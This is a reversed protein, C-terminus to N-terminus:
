TGYVFVNLGKMNKSILGEITEWKGGGLGTGIRPMHVSAGLALAKKRVAQLCEGLAAYQVKVNGGGVIADKGKENTTQKSAGKQPKAKHRATKGGLGASCLQIRHSRFLM